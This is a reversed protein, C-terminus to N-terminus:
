KIANMIDKGIPTLGFLTMTRNGIKAKIRTGLRKECLTSIMAGVTMPKDEFQGKITITVDEIVMDNEDEKYAETERLERFFDVQKATLTVKSTGFDMEFAVDKSRRPKSPKKQENRVNRELEADSADMGTEDMIQELEPDQVEDELKGLKAAEAKAEDYSYHNSVAKGNVRVTWFNTDGDFDHEITVRDVHCPEKDLEAQADEATQEKNYLDLALEYETKGIRTKKGNLGAKFYRTGSISYTMGSKTTFETTSKMTEEEKMIEKAEEEAEIQDAIEQEEQESIRDTEETMHAIEEATYTMTEEEEETEPEPFTYPEMCQRVAVLIQKVTKGYYWKHTGNIKDIRATILNDMDNGFHVTLTNDCSDIIVADFVRRDDEEVKFGMTKLIKALSDCDEVYGTFKDLGMKHAMQANTM